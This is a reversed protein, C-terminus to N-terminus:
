ARARSRYIQGLTQLTATAMKFNSILSPFRDVVLRDISESTFVIAIALTGDFYAGGMGFVTRVGYTAVFEKGPIIRRGREDESVRADAVYFAGNKGGLLRRTDLAKGDDLKLLSVDLDVLLRAIMPIAEVFAAGLLPIARHGSSRVRDCWAPERGATGLLTLVPTEEGLAPDNAVLKAAFARDDPSLKAFPLVVFVRALVATTSSTALADAFGQAAEELSAPSQDRIRARLADIDAWTSSEFSIM